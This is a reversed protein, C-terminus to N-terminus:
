AIYENISKANKDIFDLTFYTSFLYFICIGIVMNVQVYYMWSQTYTISFLLLVTNLSYIGVIWLYILNGKKQIWNYTIMFIMILTFLVIQYKIFENSLANDGPNHVTTNNNNNNNNNHSTYNNSNETSDSYFYNLRNSTM